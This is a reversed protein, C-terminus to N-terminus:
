NTSRQPRTRLDPPHRADHLLFVDAARVFQSLLAQTEGGGGARMLRSSAAAYSSRRSAHNTSRSRNYRKRPM